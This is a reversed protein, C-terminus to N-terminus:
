SSSPSIHDSVHVPRWTFCGNNKDPKLKFKRSLNEFFVSIDVEM